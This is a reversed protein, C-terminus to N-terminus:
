VPKIGAKAIVDRWKPVESEIRSRLGERGNAIVEFGNIRLQDKIAQTKLVELSKASLREVIDPATGAPALFAQFTEAIFDKYGLDVM